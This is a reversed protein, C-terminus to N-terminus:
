YYAILAPHTLEAQFPSLASETLLYGGKCALQLEVVHM